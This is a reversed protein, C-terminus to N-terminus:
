YSLSINLRVSATEVTLEKFTFHLKLFNVARNNKTTQNNSHVLALVLKM